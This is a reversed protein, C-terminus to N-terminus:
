RYAGDMWDNEDMGDEIFPYNAALEALYDV